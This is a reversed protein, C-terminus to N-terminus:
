LIEICQSSKTYKAKYYSNPIFDQKWESKAMVMTLTERPYTMGEKVFEELNFM